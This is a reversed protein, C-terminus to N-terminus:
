RHLEGRSRPRRQPMWNFGKLRAKVPDVEKMPEVLGDTKPKLSVRSAEGGTFWMHIEECTTKNLGIPRNRSRPYYYMEANGNVTIKRISDDRILGKLTRGSLQNFRGADTSDPQEILFARGELLFGKVTNGGIEIRIDRATAQMNKKWLVPSRYLQLLSDKTSMTASDCIAQLDTKFIKVNHFASLFNNVTDIDRHYLTDAAIFLSDNDVIRVYVPQRTVFAEAQKERYEIYGGYIVSKKATDVLSVNRFAKGIKKERDYVLSDGRLRQQSTVLLANRSFQSLERETDYWGNECYIYDSQSTIMSPGLFYATKNPIRYRLTDSKMKYDPNTLVVDYNFAAEKTASYYHGNRSTLTNEKNVLTGGNYYNAVSRRVDFTLLETTLTMDKEVCKVNRELTAIRTKGDYVLREGSVRISDGKTILIHGYAVMRNEEEFILATDCYLLAGEHECIVNGRLIKANHKERDFSLSEANRITITRQSLAAGGALLFLLIHLHRRCM